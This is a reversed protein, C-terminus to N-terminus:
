FKVHEKIWYMAAIIPGCVFFCMKFFKVVGQIQMWADTMGKLTADLHTMRAELAGMREEIPTHARRDIGDWAM